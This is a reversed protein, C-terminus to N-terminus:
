YEVAFIPVTNVMVFPPVGEERSVTVEEAV